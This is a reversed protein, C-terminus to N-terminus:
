HFVSLYNAIGTQSKSSTLQCLFIPLDLIYLSYSVLYLGKFILSMLLVVKSYRLDLIIVM